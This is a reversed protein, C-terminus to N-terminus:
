PERVGYSPATMGRLARDFTEVRLATKDSYRVVGPTPAPRSSEDIREVRWRGDDWRLNTQTFFWRQGPPRGPGWSVGGTWTTVSARDGSYSELRRAGVVALARGGADYNAISEASRKRLAQAERIARVRYSPTYAERVLSAYRTPDQLVTESSVAVYNDSAALAGARSHQVGVPVGTILRVAAAGRATQQAQASGDRASSRGALWGIGAAVLVGVIVAAILPWRRYDM